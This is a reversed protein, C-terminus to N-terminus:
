PGISGEPSQPRQGDPIVKVPMISAGPAMGAGGVGNDSCQAVSGAVHSGHGDADFAAGPGLTGTVANYEASFPMCFGDSGENVGPNLVAVTVGAGVTSLWATGVNAAHLHWQWASSASNTYLPDPSIFPPTAQKTLTLDLEALEVGPRTAMEEAWEIPELGAPVPVEFWDQTVEDPSSGLTGVAQADSTM